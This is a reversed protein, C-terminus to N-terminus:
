PIKAKARQRAAASQGHLSGLLPLPPSEDDAGKGGSGQDVGGSPRGVEWAAQNPSGDVKGPVPASQLGM